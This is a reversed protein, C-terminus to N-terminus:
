KVAVKTRAGLKEVRTVMHMAAGGSSALRVRHMEEWTTTNYVTVIARAEAVRSTHVALLADCVAISSIPHSKRITEILEDRVHNYTVVAYRDVAFIINGQAQMQVVSRDCVFRRQRAETTTQVADKYVPALTWLCVEGNCHGTAVTNYPLFVCSLGLPGGIYALTRHKPRFLQVVDLQADLKHVTIDGHAIAVLPDTPHFAICTIASAIPTGDAHQFMWKPAVCTWHQDPARARLLRISHTFGPRFRCPQAVAVLVCRNWDSCAVQYPYCDESFTHLTTSHQSRSDLLQLM